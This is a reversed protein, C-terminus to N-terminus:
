PRSPGAQLVVDVGGVAPVEVRWSEWAMSARCHGSGSMGTFTSEPPSRRRTARHRRSSSAGSRSSSSSGVLWRSASIPATARATGACSDLAGHEGHGVVAVEEVVHGLPDALDVAAVQVGVLAVVGGVELGLGGAHGGLALLSALGPWACAPRARTPASSGRLGALGLVLGTELAVVLHLGLGAGGLLTSQVSMWIGTPGRRPELTRTASCRCLCNPSRTSM